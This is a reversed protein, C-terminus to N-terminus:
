EVTETNTGFLRDRTADYHIAPDYQGVPLRLDRPNMKGISALVLYAAVVNDRRANALSVQSDVLEQEADLVDLTTRSGVLAEQRVGELAFQNARVQDAFSRITQRTAVLAHWASVVNERVARRAELIELRRQSAVQKAERVESYVRGAQYLPISLAGLVTGNESTNTFASPEHRLSFRAQLSLTPLLQGKVAEINHRSADEIHMAALINPNTREAIAIAEQLSKPLRRLVKAKRLKGPAHGVLRTYNARSTQLNSQANSLNSRSLSLRANSQSVDTKTIEGVDFRANSAQLQQGLFSVNRRRLRVIERDRIVNMFASAADFLVQQEVALLTQRGAEVNSEARKTENITRFGRFIPQSLQIAFGAPETETTNTTNTDDWEIGADADASITPRWGSLAQPVQEDTARQRAREARITPNNAYASALAQALTEGHAYANGSTAALAGLALGYIVGHGLRRLSLSSKAM